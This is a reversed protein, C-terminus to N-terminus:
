CCGDSVAVLIEGTQLRTVVRLSLAPSLPLPRVNRPKDNLISVIAREYSEIAEQEARLQELVTSSM